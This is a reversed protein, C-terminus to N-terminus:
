EVEDAEETDFAGPLGYAMVKRGEIRLQAKEADGSKVLPSIRAVVKGKTIDEFGMAAVEEMLDEVTKPELTLCNQIAQRLADGVAAKEAAKARAKEARSDLNAIQKELVEMLEDRNECEIGDVIAMLEVFAERKTM